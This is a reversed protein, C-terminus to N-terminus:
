WAGLCVAHDAQPAPLERGLVGTAFLTGLDIDRRWDRLRPHESGVIVDTAGQEDKAFCLLDKPEALSLIVPSHTACLIQNGYASALSQYVTEVARPHIGNEPEEILFVADEINAYAVLTLALLRLTGDSVTWSPAPLGTEYHVRLYRHRDEEREVTDISQVDPLATRLHDLWAAYRAEDKSLEHIAWPLNSGDPQFEVPSGPPSPRRMAESNLALRQVGAQLVRRVWTAVPFREEDEPLNALAARQPGLRFPSKWDTTESMFYDNGTEAQKLVVKKWGVPTRRREPMVIHEPPPPPAPFLESQVREVAADPRKLWLCEALISLESSPALGIAVEYRAIQAGNQPLKKRRAEPIQLEVALEIRTGEQMWVLKHFDPSRDGVAKRLGSDLLDGLLAIVDLFTSKGSANPGVLIQFPAIERKVARLCKYRLAEVRRIV